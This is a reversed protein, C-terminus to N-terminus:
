KTIMGNTVNVVVFCDFLKEPVVFLNSSVSLRRCLVDECREIKLGTEVSAGTLTKVLAGLFFFLPLHCM